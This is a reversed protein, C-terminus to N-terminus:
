KEMQREGVAILNAIAMSHKMIKLNWGEEFANPGKGCGHSLHSGADCQIFLVIVSILFV